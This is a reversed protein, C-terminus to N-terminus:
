PLPETRLRREEYRKAMLQFVPRKRLIGVLEVFEQNPIPNEILKRQKVEPNLALAVIRHSYARDILDIDFIGDKLLTNLTELRGFYRHVRYWEEDTLPKKTGYEAKEYRLRREIDSFQALAEDFQLIFEGKAIHRTMRLQMGNFVLGAATILLGIAAIFLAISDVVELTM